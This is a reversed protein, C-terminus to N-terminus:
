NVTGRLDPRIQHLGIESARSVVQSTTPVATEIKNIFDTAM